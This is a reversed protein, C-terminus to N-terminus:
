YEIRDNNRNLLLAMREAAIKCCSLGQDEARHFIGLRRILLDDLHLALEFLVAFSVEALVFEFPQMLKEREKPFSRMRSIIWQAKSAPMSLLHSKLEDTLFDEDDLRSLMMPDDELSLVDTLSASPSFKHLSNHIIFDVTKEALNRHTTLKGGAAATIGNAIHIIKYDRSKQNINSKNIWHFKENNLLKGIKDTKFDESLLPRLGSWTCHIDELKLNADPFCKVMARYIYEVEEPKARLFNPDDADFGSDTTGAIIINHFPVCYCWRGDDPSMLILASDLKLKENSFAIHIGKSPMILDKPAGPLNGLMAGAAYVIHSTNVSFAEGTECDKLVAGTLKNFENFSPKIFEVYNRVVAGNNKADLITSISLRSDDTLCDYYVLSGTLEKKSISPVLQLTSTINLRKHIRYTKFKSLVDYIWLGLDLWASKLHSTGYLPIIFRIPKVLGQNLKMQSDRASCCEMVLKLQFSELYRYGGHVLKASNGSAESAFDNKEVLLVKMKRLAAERAIAAGNIGGGVVLLDFTNSKLDNSAHRDMKVSHECCLNSLKIIDRDKMDKYVPIYVMNLLIRKAEIPDLYQARAPEINWPLDVCFLQSTGKTADFGNKWLIHMLKIPNATVIPYLWYTCNDSDIGPKECYNRLLTDALKGKSIHMQMSAPDYNRLKRYLLKLLACSPQLQIKLFLDGGAYGRTLRTLTIDYSKQDKFFTKVLLSFVFRNSSLAKLLFYLVLKKSYQSRKQLPYNNEAIRMKDLIVPDKVRSVSGGLATFFKINGFSFMSIDAQPHGCYDLFGNYAQACDEVLVLGNEDAFRAFKSIDFRSGYLHTVILVKSKHSLARKCLEIRPILTKVDLDVPVPILGHAKIIKVMDPITVASILVESGEPLNLARLFLDFATRVSLCVFIKESPSILGAIDSKIEDRKKQVSKPYTCYLLGLLIDKFSIHLRKRAWM